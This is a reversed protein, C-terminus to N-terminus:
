ISIFQNKYDTAEELTKFYKQITKKDRTIKFKYCKNRECYHINKIGIKNSKAANREDYNTNHNNEEHTAWRLNELSNDNRKRNIHDVCPKNDVNPIYHEALLRHVSFLKRKSDKWLGIKYYGNKSLQQKLLGGKVRYRRKTHIEGNEYIIYNPYNKVEM